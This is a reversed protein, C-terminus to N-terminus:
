LIGEIPWGAIEHLNRGTEFYGRLKKRAVQYNYLNLSSEYEQRGIVKEDYLKKNLKYVREAERLANDVDAMQTQRNMSNQEANNKTNQMQTLVNFVATEQNALSFELDTNSLRLIPENKKM